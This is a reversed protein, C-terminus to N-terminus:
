WLHRITNIIPTTSVSSRSIKPYLCSYQPHDVQYANIHQSLRLKEKDNGFLKFEISLHDRVQEWYHRNLAYVGDNNVRYDTYTATEDDYTFQTTNFHKISTTCIGLLTTNVRLDHKDIYNFIDPSLQLVTDDIIIVSRYSKFLTDLSAKYNRNIKTEESALTIVGTNALWSSIVKNGKNISAYIRRSPDVGKIKNIITHLSANTYQKRIYLIVPSKYIDIKIKHHIDILSSHVNYGAYLQNPFYFRSYQNEIADHKSIMALRNLYLGTDYTDPKLHGIIHSDCSQQDVWDTLQTVNIWTKSDIIMAGSYNTTVFYDYFGVMKSYTDTDPHDLITIDNRISTDPNHSLGIFIKLDWSTTGTHQGLLAVDHQLNQILTWDTQLCTLCTIIALIAVNLM